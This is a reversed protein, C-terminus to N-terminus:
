VTTFPDTGQIRILDTERFGLHDHPYLKVGHKQQKTKNTMARVISYGSYVLDTEYDHMAASNPAIIKYYVQLRRYAVVM